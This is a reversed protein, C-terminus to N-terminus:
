KTEQLVHMCALIAHNVTARCEDAPGIHPPRMADINDLCQKVSSFGRACKVMEDSVNAVLISCQDNESVATLCRRM